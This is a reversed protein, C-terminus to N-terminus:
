LNSQRPSCLYEKKGLNRIHLNANINMISFLLAWKNVTLILIDLLKSQGYNRTLKM